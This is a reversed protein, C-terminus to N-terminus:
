EMTPIMSDPPPDLEERTISGDHSDNLGYLPTLTFFTGDYDERLLYAGLSTM